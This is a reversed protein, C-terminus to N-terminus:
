RRGGWGRWRSGDSAGWPSNDLAPRNHPVGRGPVDRTREPLHLRNDQHRSQYRLADRAQEAREARRNRMKDASNRLADSRDNMRERHTDRLDEFWDNITDRLNERAEKREELWAELNDRIDERAEKRSELFDNIVHNLDDEGYLDDLDYVYYYPSGYGYYYPYYYPSYFAYFPDYYFPDYYFPHYYPDYYFSAGGGVPYGYPMIPAASAAPSGSGGQDIEDFINGSGAPAPQNDAAAGSTIASQENRITACAFTFLILLLSGLFRKM